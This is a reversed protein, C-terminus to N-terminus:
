DKPAERLTDRLRYPEALTQMRQFVCKKLYSATNDKDYGFGWVFTRADNLGEIRGFVLAEEFIRMIDGYTGDDPKDQHALIAVGLRKKLNEYEM